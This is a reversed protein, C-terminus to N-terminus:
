KTTKKPAAELVSGKAEPLLLNPEPMTVGQERRIAEYRDQSHAATANADKLVIPRLFVMLNTREKSKSQYKFFNGILPIDGLLPVKSDSGKTDDQILGGLVLIEGDEAIATTKIERKNTILDVPRLATATLATPAISSVEQEIKLQIGGVTVLPTVKLKLGIDQRTITQFPNTASGTTGTQTYQGSIFPVTQGVTISGEVNDLTLITPRALINARQDSELAKALGALGIVEGVGPINIRGRVLGVNLGGGITSLNSAAGIINGTTGFNTGGIVQSGDGRRLGSLDQWQIGFEAAASTTLEVVIAEIAVQARRQDLKEIVNRLGNYVNEPASIILSNTAADAQINSSAAATPAAQALTAPTTTSTINPTSPASSSSSNMLGRLVEALKGAEANKLQVVHVNGSGAGPVDMGAVLTRVRTVLAPTDARVILSNTRADVGFGLKPPQGPNAPNSIAEPMLGKLLNSVDVASAYQLKIVAVDVAAPVDIAGIIKAIRKVNEAYDTIVLMNNNPYAGIFNNPAVLPRLVNVLQAASENQLAFIQTVIRDGSANVGAGPLGGSTKADAEPIIKVAGKEEVAAYGHVRLASLLIQYAVDKTVPTQSIINMSGMVRPDIIFNKGTHAGIAKVVSPIDANVFNITVMDQATLPAGVSLACALVLAALRQPRASNSPLTM